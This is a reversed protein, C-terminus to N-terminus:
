SIADKLEQARRALAHNLEESGRLTGPLIWRATLLLLVGRFHESQVFRTRRGGDIEARLDHTAAM